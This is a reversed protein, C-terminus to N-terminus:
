DSPLTYVRAWDVEYVAPRMRDGFFNDLQITQYMAPACQICQRLENGGGTFTFWEDGDVFGKVHDPTWEVAINHWQTLDVGCREASELQVPASADHPYHIYAEVCPEGPEVNELYDYEGHEPHRDSRPWLILLPHYQPGDSPNSPRFQVRAEWRGYQQDFTSAIWGTDGNAEGEIRLNGDVVRANEACRRGSGEHGPWCGDGSGVQNWKVPDPPEPAEHGYDFEDSGEPVPEGWGHRAAATDDRPPPPPRTPPPGPSTTTPEAGPVTDPPLSPPPPLGDLRRYDCNWATWTNDPHDATMDTLVNARRAGEPATFSESITTADASNVPVGVWLGDDHGIHGSPGGPTSYWDVEIRVRAGGSPAHVTTDFSFRWVQGGSVVQQPLYFSPDIRGNHAQQYTGRSRVPMAGRIRGWRELNQPCTNAQAAAFSSRGPAAGAALTSSEGSGYAVTVALLVTAGASRLCGRARGQVSSSLSM